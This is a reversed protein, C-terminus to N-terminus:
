EPLSKLMHSELKNALFWCVAGAMVWYILAFVMLGILAVQAEKNADSMTLMRAVSFLLFGLFLEMIVILFANGHERLHRYSEIIEQRGVSKDVRSKALRFYWRQWEDGSNAKLYLRLTIAYFTFLAMGVAAYIQWLPKFVLIGVGASIVFTIFLLGLFIWNVQKLQGWFNLKTNQKSLKTNGSRAYTERVAHLLTIPASALYCYAFGLVGLVIMNTSKIDDFCPILDIGIQKLLAYVIVAGVVSGTIYRVLYTEWWRYNTLNEM